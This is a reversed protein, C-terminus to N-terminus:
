LRLQWILGFKLCKLDKPTAKPYTFVKTKTANIAIKNLIKAMIMEPSSFRPLEILKNTINTPIADKVMKKNKCAFSNITKTSIIKM